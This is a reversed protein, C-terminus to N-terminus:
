VTEAKSAAALLEACDAATETVVDAAASVVGGETGVPTEAELKVDELTFRAHVAEVSM